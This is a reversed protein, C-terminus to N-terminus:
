NTGQRNQDYVRIDRTYTSRQNIYHGESGLQQQKHQTSCVYQRLSADNAKHFICKSRISGRLSRFLHQIHYISVCPLTSRIYIQVATPEKPKCADKKRAMFSALICICAHSFTSCLYIIMLQLLCIYIPQTQIKSELYNHLIQIRALQFIVLSAAQM